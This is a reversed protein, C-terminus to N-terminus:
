SERNRQHPGLTYGVIVRDNGKTGVRVSHPHNPAPRPRQGQRHTGVVELHYRRSPARYWRPYMGMTTESQKAKYFWGPFLRGCISSPEGQSIEPSNM